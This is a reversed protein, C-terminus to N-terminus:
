SQTAAAAHEAALVDPRIIAVRDITHELVLQLADEWRDDLAGARIAQALADQPNGPSADGGLLRASREAALRDLDAAGDLERLAMDLLYRAVQTDYALGRDLKPALDRLFDRVTTLLDSLTPSFRQTENM